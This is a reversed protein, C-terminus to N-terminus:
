NSGVHRRAADVSFEQGAVPALFPIVYGKVEVKGAKKAEVVLDYKFEGRRFAEDSLHFVLVENRSSRLSIQEPALNQVVLLIEGEQKKEKIERKEQPEGKEDENAELKERM